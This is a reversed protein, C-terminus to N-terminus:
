GIKPLWEMESAYYQIRNLKQKQKRVSHTQTQTLEMKNSKIEMEIHCKLAHQCQKFCLSVVKHARCAYWGFKREYEANQSGRFFFTQQVM